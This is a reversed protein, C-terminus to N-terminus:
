SRGEAKAIAASARLMAKQQERMSPVHKYGRLSRLDTSRHLDKLADLLDNKIHISHNSDWSYVPFSGKASKACAALKTPTIWVCYGVPEVM